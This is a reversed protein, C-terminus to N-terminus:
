KMGALQAWEQKQQPDVKTLRPKPEHPFLEDSMTRQYCEDRLMEWTQKPKKTNRAMAYLQRAIQTIADM